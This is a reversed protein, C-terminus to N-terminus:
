VKRITAFSIGTLRVLQRISAGFARADHLINLSRGKEYQQLDAPNEIQYKSALFDMIEEETKANSVSDFDFIASTEPVPTKVLARFEDLTMRALVLQTSCVAPSVHAIHEYENWSSWKYSFADAALGAAVPAQHIYQLATTFYDNDNVPKSKYRDHFLQGSHQHRKNYYVAYASAIRRMISPTGESSDMMLLHIRNPMLCYAYFICLSPLVKKKGDVPRVMKFLLQMFYTYDENDEFINQKDIGRIIVHYIGTKSVERSRIRM